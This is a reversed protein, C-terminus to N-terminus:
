RVNGAAKYENLFSRIEEKTIGAMYAEKFLLVWEPDQATVDPLQQRAAPNVNSRRRESAQTKRGEM